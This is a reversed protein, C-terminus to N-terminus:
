PGKPHEDRELRIGVCLGATFPFMVAFLVTVPNVGVVFLPIGVAGAVCVVLSVLRAVSM